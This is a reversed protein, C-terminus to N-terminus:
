SRPRREIIELAAGSAKKYLIWGCGECLVKATEGVKLEELLYGFDGHKCFRPPAGLNKSCDGCFEAMPILILCLGNVFCYIM